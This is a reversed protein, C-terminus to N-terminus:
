SINGETAVNQVVPGLIFAYIHQAQPGGAAGAAQYYVAYPGLTNAAAANTPTPGNQAWNGGFNGQLNAISNSNEFHTVM